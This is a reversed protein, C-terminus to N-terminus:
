RLVFTDVDHAIIGLVTSGTVILTIGLVLGAAATHTLVDADARVGTTTTIGARFPGAATVLLTHDGCAIIVEVATGTTNCAINSCTLLNTVHLWQELHLHKRRVNPTSGSM